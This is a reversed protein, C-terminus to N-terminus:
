SYIEKIANLAGGSVVSEDDSDFSLILNKKGQKIDLTMTSASDSMQASDISTCLENLSTDLFNDDNLKNLLSLTSYNNKLNQAFNSAVSYLDKNKVSLTVTANELDIDTIEVELNRFIAKGLEAFQDHSEAYKMIVSLTSSDVYKDLKKSDFEQLATTVQNVTKTVNEETMEASSGCGTLCLCLMLACLILSLMKKM